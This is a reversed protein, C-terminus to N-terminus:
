PNWIYDLPGPGSVGVASYSPDHPDIFQNPGGTGGGFQGAKVSTRVKLPEAPAEQETQKENDPQKM